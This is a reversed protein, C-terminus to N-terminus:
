CGNSDNGGDQEEEEVWPEVGYFVEYNSCWRQSARIFFYLGISSVFLSLAFSHLVNFLSDIIFYLIEASIFLFLFIHLFM